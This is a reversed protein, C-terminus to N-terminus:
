DDNYSNAVRIKESKQIEVLRGDHVTLTISGYRIDRLAEVLEHFSRAEAASLNTLYEGPNSISM